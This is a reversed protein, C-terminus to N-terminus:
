EYRDRNSREKPELPKRFWFLALEAKISCKCSSRWNMKNIEHLKTWKKDSLKEKKDIMDEIQSKVEAVVKKALNVNSVFIRNYM